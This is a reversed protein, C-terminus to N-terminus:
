EYIPHIFKAEKMKEKVESSEIPMDNYFLKLFKMYIISYFDKHNYLPINLDNCAIAM